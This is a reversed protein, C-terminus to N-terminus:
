RQRKPFETQGTEKAKIRELLVSSRRSKMKTKGSMATVIGALDTLYKLTLSVYMTKCSAAGTLFDVLPPGSAQEDLESM